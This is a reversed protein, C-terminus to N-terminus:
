MSKKIIGGCSFVTARSISVLVGSIPRNGGYIPGPPDSFVTGLSDPFITGGASFM